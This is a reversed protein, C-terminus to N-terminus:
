DIIEYHAEGVKNGNIDYLYSHSYQQGCEIRDMITHVIRAIEGMGDETGDDFAASDTNIEVNLKFKSM